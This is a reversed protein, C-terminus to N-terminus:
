PVLSELPGVPLSLQLVRAFIFWIIFSFVIGIPLTQWLPGRGFGKATAAFLIGTAISFGLTGLLLMQVVLGGVIWFLPRYSDREREPFKGRWASVATILSLVALGTAVIYPFTTPGVQAYTAVVRMQATQWFIIAAITALIAAIILAAGDPRRKLNPTEGTM